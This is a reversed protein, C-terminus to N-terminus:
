SPPRIESYPPFAGMNCSMNYKKDGRANQPGSEREENYHDCAGELFVPRCMNPIRQTLGKCRNPDYKNKTWGGAAAELDTEKLEIDKKIEDSM